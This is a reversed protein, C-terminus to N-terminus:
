GYEDNVPEYILDSLDKIGIMRKKSYNFRQTFGSNKNNYREVLVM